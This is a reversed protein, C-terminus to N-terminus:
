FVQSIILQDVVVHQKSLVPPKAFQTYNISPIVSPGINVGSKAYGASKAYGISAIITLLCLCTLNAVNRGINRALGIINPNLLASYKHSHPPAIQQTM